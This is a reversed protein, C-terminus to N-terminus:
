KIEIETMERLFELEIPRFNWYQINVNFRYGNNVDTKINGGHAHIIGESKGRWDLLPWHSVVLKDKPLETISNSAIQHRGLKILSMDPLHSDYIAPFFKIQGRLHIMASESSIPDWGFNGLHIVVDKDTVASNWNDIIVDDMEEASEFGREIATLERGFFTDSTLFIKM